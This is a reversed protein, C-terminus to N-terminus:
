ISQLPGEFHIRSYGVFMATAVFNRDNCSIEKSLDTSPIGRWLRYCAQFFIENLALIVNMKGSSIVNM